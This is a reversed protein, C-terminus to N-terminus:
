PLSTQLTDFKVITNGGNLTGAAMGIDGSSLTTDQVTAIQEGNVILSLEPGKCIATLHNSGELHIASSSLMAPGTLPTLTGNEKTHRFIGYYGDASIAFYYFNGENYRCILGYHNDSNNASSLDVDIAVDHYQYGRTVWTFWHPAAIQFDYTGGIYGRTFTDHIESDWGSSVNSFDDTFPASDGTCGTLLFLLCLLAVWKLRM